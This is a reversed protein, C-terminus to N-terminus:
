RRKARAALLADDIEILQYEYANVVTTDLYRTVRVTDQRYIHIHGHLWYLPRHRRMMGLFAGFGQHCLDPEDHIGRPAAHSIMVDVGRGYRLRNLGLTPLMMLANTSMQLESYQHAGSNYKMSGELGGVLLGRYNVVRRHLNICGEPESKRSGNALLVDKQVHNGNVYFLTGRGIRCVLHEMYDLPLDGCSLVLDVDQFRKPIASATLQGAVADSVALIKM